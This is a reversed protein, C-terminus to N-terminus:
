RISRLGLVLFILTVVGAAAAATTAGREFLVIGTFAAALMFVTLTLCGQKKM